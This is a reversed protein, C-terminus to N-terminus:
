AGAGTCACVYQNAAESAVFLFGTRLVALGAAVPVTDFYRVRVDRVRDAEWDV